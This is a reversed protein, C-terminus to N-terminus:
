VPRGKPPPPYRLLYERIGSHIADALKAQYDGDALREEERPNSIFATEVLISPIDPAKLVAFGAKEISAKHLKGLEGLQGLVMQGFNSSDRIQAATSLELLVRALERDHNRLNVGGILDASNEKDALWRAASSSARKESLVYVSAGSANPDVFADAHVSVFLDAGVRRAKDVRVGLPVFYDGNRTLFARMNPEANIRKRLLRAIALVVDKERTGAHGIAGPDEGGHGADIAITYLRAVPEERRKRPERPPPTPKVGVPPAPRLEYMPAQAQALPARERLLAAIPDDRSQMESLFQALPDAPVRPYLDLLLRHRYRGVPELAFLQPAVDRKLDFVLRVVTPMFQGVRVQAIYPDDPQVKAVLERLTNDLSLDLLDVVLRPPDPVSILNHALPKDLELTVRTYDPAPWVRVALIGAGRALPLNLTVAAAAAARAIFRRRALRGSHARPDREPV